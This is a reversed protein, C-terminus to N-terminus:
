LCRGRGTQAEPRPRARDFRSVGDHNHLSHGASGPWGVYGSRGRHSKCRAQGWWGAPPEERDHGGVGSRSVVLTAAPWKLAGGCWGALFWKVGIRAENQEREGLRLLFDPLAYGTCDRVTRYAQDDIGSGWTAFTACSVSHGASIGESRPLRAEDSRVSVWQKAGFRARPACTRSHRNRQRTRSTAHSEAPNGSVRLVGRYQCAALPGPTRIGWPGSASFGLARRRCSLDAAADTPIAARASMWTM